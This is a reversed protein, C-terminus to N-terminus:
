ATVKVLITSAKLETSSNQTKEDKLKKRVTWFFASNNVHNKSVHKWIVTLYKLTCILFNYTLLFLTLILTVLQLGILAFRPQFHNKLSSTNKTLLKISTYFISLKWALLKKRKGNFNNLINKQRRPYRLMFVYNLGMDDYEWRQNKNPNSNSDKM